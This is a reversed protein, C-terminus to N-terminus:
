PRLRLSPGIAQLTGKMPIATGNPMQIKDFVMALSSQSDGKSRAEAQTIHGIVKSGSPIMMGSGSHLASVTTCVVTDGDKLKKRLPFHERLRPLM